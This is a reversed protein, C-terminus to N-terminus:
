NRASALTKEPLNLVSERRSMEDRFRPSEALRDFAALVLPPTRFEGLTRTENEKLVRFTEGVFQDGFIRAPDLIYELETRSLKYLHAYYADLEARIIHRKEPNWAFPAFPLDGDHTKKLHSNGTRTAILRRLREDSDRWTDEAFSTMDAATFVLELVRPVIFDLDPSAYSSPPLVPLQNVIFFNFNTGGVKQRTIYDFVLSNVNALFCCTLTAAHQWNDFICFSNGVGCFPILGFVATRENRSDTLMRFGILWRRHQPQVTRTKAQDREVWYRPLVSFNPDCKEVESCERVTGDECTAWRHDFHWVFKAEYLPVLGRAASVKFLGSDNSMHFMAMFKVMWPNAKTSEEYLVPVNRYIKKTIDADYRTRFLPCTSTNPNVLRLDHRTLVFVRNADRLQETQTALFCYRANSVESAAATLLSFKTKTHLAPFLHGRNEFDFLSVLNDKATLTSFFQKCTDDTAIGTPVIIGM